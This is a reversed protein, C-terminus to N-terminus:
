KRSAMQDFVCLLLKIGNKENINNILPFGMFNSNCFNNKIVYEKQSTQLTILFRSAIDVCLKKNFNTQMLTQIVKQPLNPQALKIKQYFVEKKIFNYTNIFIIMEKEDDNTLRINLLQKLHYYFELKFYTDTDYKEEIELEKLYQDLLQIKKENKNDDVLVERIMGGKATEGRGGEVLNLTDTNGLFEGCVKCTYVGDQQIGYIDFIRGFNIEGDTELMKIGALWHKCVLNQSCINCTTFNPNDKSSKKKNKNYFNNLFDEESEDVIKDLDLVYDTNLYNNIVLSYYQYKETLTTNKIKNIFKLMDYHICSVNGQIHQQVEIALLKKKEIKDKKINSKKKTLNLIDKRTDKVNKEINKKEKEINKNFKIEDQLTEILSEKEEIQQEALNYDYNLCKMTDLEFTCNPSDLDFNFYDNYISSCKQKEFDYKEQDIKHQSNFFEKKQTQIIEQISKKSDLVWQDLGAIKMRKYVKKTDKLELICFDGEVIPNNNDDTIDVGNDKELDSLKKYKVIKTKGLSLKQCDKNVNKSKTNLKLLKIENNLKNINLELESINKITNISDYNLLTQNYSLFKIGFPINHNIWDVKIFNSDISTNKYTYNVNILKELEEILINPISVETNQIVKKKLTKKKISEKVNKIFTTIKKSEKEYKQKFIQNLIKFESALLQNKHYGYIEIIELATKYNESNLIDKKHYNIIDTFSPIIKDLLNMLEDNNNESRIKSQKNKKTKIFLYIVLNNPHKFFLSNLEKSPEEFNDDINIIKIYNNEICKFFIDNTFLNKNANVVGDKNISYILAIPLRFFGVIKIDDGDYNKINQYVNFNNKIEKREMHTDLDLIKTNNKNDESKYEYEDENEEDNEQGISKKLDNINEYFKFSSSLNVQYDNSIKNSLINECLFPNNCYRVTLVNKDTIQNQIKKKKINTTNIINNKSLTNLDLKNIELTDEGLKASLINYNKSSENNNYYNENTHNPKLLNKLQTTFKDYNYVQNINKNKNFKKFNILYNISNIEDYFNQLMTFTKNFDETDVNDM